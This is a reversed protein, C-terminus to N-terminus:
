CSSKEENECGHRCSWKRSERCKYVYEPNCLRVRSCSIITEKPEHSLKEQEKVQPDTIIITKPAKIILANIKILKGRYYCYGQLAQFTIILARCKESEINAQNKLGSQATNHWM